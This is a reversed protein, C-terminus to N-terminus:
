ILKGRFMILFFVDELFFVGVLCVVVYEGISYGLM